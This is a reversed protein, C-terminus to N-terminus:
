SPAANRSARDGLAKSTQTTRREIPLRDGVLDHAVVFQECVRAVTVALQVLAECRRCGPTSPWAPRPTSPPCFPCHSASSSHESPLPSAREGCPLAISAIVNGMPLAGPDARRLFGRRGRRACRGVLPGWLDRRVHDANVSHGSGPRSVARCHQDSSPRLSDLPM